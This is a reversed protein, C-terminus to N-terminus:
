LMIMNGIPAFLVTESKKELCRKKLLRCFLFENLVNVFPFGVAETNGTADCNENELSAHFILIQIKRASRM